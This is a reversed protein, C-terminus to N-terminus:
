VRWVDNMAVDADYLDPMDEFNWWAGIVMHAFVWERIEREAIGFGAAFLKVADGLMTEIKPDDRQWRELNFLFVAIDYGLHGVIGKPDIALFPERGATVINGPHFDGHLYFTRGPQVSLREYIEFAKEAYRKPFDTDCYRRFNNFWNDLTDVDTLDAPPPRLISRLVDIAPRVCEAPNEAFHQFLAEGPVAHEILIARRERDEALLRVAGKGNITRLHKAEGYIETREFPPAIKVVVPRGENTMAPAVFNYEIGPFPEKVSISWRTELETITRPLQEFWAEGRSGFISTIHTVLEQPLTDKFPPTM